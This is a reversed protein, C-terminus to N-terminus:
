SVWLFFDLVSLNPSIEPWHLVGFRSILRGKFAFWLIEDTPRETHATARNQQFWINELGMEELQPLLFDNLMDKYREDNETTTQRAAKEFFYPSM